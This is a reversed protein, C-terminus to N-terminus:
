CDLCKGLSEGLYKVFADFLAYSLSLGRLALTQWDLM